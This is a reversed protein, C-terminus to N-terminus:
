TDSQQKCPSTRRHIAEGYHARAPSKLSEAWALWARRERGPPFQQWIVRRLTILAAPRIEKAKMASADYLSQAIDASLEPTIACIRMCRTSVAPVAHVPCPEVRSAAAHAVALM